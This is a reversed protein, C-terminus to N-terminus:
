LYKKIGDNVSEVLARKKLLIADMDSLNQQKM